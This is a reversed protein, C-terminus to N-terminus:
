RLAQGSWVVRGLVRHSDSLLKHGSIESDLCQPNACILAVRAEPLPQLRRVILADAFKLVFYGELSMMQQPRSDVLVWDGHNFTPAMSDGSVRYAHLHDPDLKLESVLFDRRFALSNHLLHSNQAQGLESVRVYDNSNQEQRYPEDPEEQVWDAHVGQVSLRQQGQGTILWHLNIGLHAIVALFNSDPSREGSEYRALTNKHVGTRKAFQALNQRGRVFTLRQGLSEKPENDVIFGQKVRKWSSRTAAKYFRVFAASM